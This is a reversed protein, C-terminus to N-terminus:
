FYDNSNVVKLIAGKLTERFKSYNLTYNDNVIAPWDIILNSNTAWNNFEENVNNDDLELKIKWTNLDYTTDKDIVVLNDDFLKFYKDLKGDIVPNNAYESWFLTSKSLWRGSTGYEKILLKCWVLTKKKKVLVEKAKKLVVKETYEKDLTWDSSLCNKIDIEETVTTPYFWTDLTAQIKQWEVKLWVNEWNSTKLADACQSKILNVVNNRVEISSTSGEYTWGKKEVNEEWDKGWKNALQKIADLTKKWLKKDPVLNINLESNLYKQLWEIDANNIFASVKNKYDGKLSNVLNELEKKDIKNYLKVQNSLSRLEVKTSSNTEDLVDKADVWTKTSWRGVLFQLTELTQPWLKNDESIHGNNLWIEKEKLYKILEEKKSLEMKDIVKNLSRQMWEIDGKNLSDSLKERISRINDPMWSILKTIEQKNVGKKWFKYTKLNKVNQELDKLDSATRSKPNNVLKEAEHYLTFLAQMNLANYGFKKLFDDLASKSNNWWKWDVEGVSYWLANLGAQIGMVVEQTEPSKTENNKLQKILSDASPKNWVVKSIRKKAREVRATNTTLTKYEKRLSAIDVSSSSLTEPNSPM